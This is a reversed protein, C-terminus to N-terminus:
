PRVAGNVQTSTDDLSDPKAVAHRATYSALDAPTLAGMGGRRKSM